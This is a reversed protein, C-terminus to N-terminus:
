IFENIQGKPTILKGNKKVNNSFTGDFITGDEWKYIGKGDFKNQKFEGTYQWKKIKNKMCGRGEKMGDKFDGQYEYEKTTHTGWGDM